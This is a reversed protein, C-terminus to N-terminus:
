EGDEVAKRALQLAERCARVTDYTKSVQIAASSLGHVLLADALFLCAQQYVRQAKKLGYERDWKDHLTSDAARKISPTHQKCWVEGDEPNVGRRSCQHSGFMRGTFAVQQSCREEKPIM